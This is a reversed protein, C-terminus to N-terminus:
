DDTIPPHQLLIQPPVEEKPDLSEDIIPPFQLITVQQEQLEDIIPPHQLLM